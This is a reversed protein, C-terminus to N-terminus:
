WIMGETMFSYIITEDYYSSGKVNLKFDFDRYGDVEYIGLYYYRHEDDEICELDDLNFIQDNFYIEYDNSFKNIKMTLNVKVVEDYNSIIRVRKMDGNHSIDVSTGVGRLLTEKQKNYENSANVCIPVVIILMIAMSIIEVVLRKLEKDM